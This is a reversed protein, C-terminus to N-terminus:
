FDTHGEAPVLRGEKAVLVAIEVTGDNAVTRTLDGSQAEAHVAVVGDLVEFALCSRERERVGLPEPRQM